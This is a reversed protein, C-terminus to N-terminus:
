RKSGQPNRDDSKVQMGGEAKSSGKRMGCSKLIRDLAKFIQELFNNATNDQKLDCGQEKATKVLQSKLDDIVEKIKEEPLYTSRDKPNFQNPNILENLTVELTDKYFDEAAGRITKKDVAMDSLFGDIYTLIFKAAHSEVNVDKPEIDLSKLLKIFFLRKHGEIQRIKGNQDLVSNKKCKPIFEHKKGFLSHRTTMASAFISKLELGHVPTGPEYKLVDDDSDTFHRHVKDEFEKEFLWPVLSYGGPVKAGHVEHLIQFYQGEKIQGHHHKDYMEIGDKYIASDEPRPTSNHIDWFSKNFRKYADGLDYTLVESTLPGCISGSADVPARELEVHAYKMDDSCRVKTILTCQHDNVKSSSHELLLKDLHKQYDQPM